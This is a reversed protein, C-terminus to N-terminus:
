PAAAAELHRDVLAAVASVVQRAVFDLAEPAGEHAYQLFAAVGITDSRSSSASTAITARVDVDWRYRGSIQSFFTVRAEVLLAHAPEPVAARVAALRRDTTVLDRAPLPSPPHAPVLNREGLAADLRAVFAAPPTMGSADPGDLWVHVAIPTPTPLREPARAGICAALGATLALALVLALPSLRRASILVM